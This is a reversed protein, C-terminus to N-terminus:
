CPVHLAVEEVSDKDNGEVLGDLAGGADCGKVAEGRNDSAEEESENDESDAAEFGEDDESCTQEQDGEAQEDVEATAGACGRVRANDTGLDAKTNSSSHERVRRLSTNLSSGLVFTLRRSDEKKVEAHVSRRWVDGNYGADVECGVVDATGNAVSNGAGHPLLDTRAFESALGSISRESSVDERIWESKCKGVGDSGGVAVCHDSCVTM